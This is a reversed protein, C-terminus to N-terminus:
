GQRLLVSKGVHEIAARRTADIHPVSSSDRARSATAIQQMRGIVLLVRERSTACASRNATEVPVSRQRGEEERELEQRM